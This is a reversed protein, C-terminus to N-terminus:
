TPRNDWRLTVAFPTTRRVMFRELGEQVDVVLPFDDADRHSSFDNM